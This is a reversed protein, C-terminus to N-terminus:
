LRPTGQLSAFCQTVEDELSLEEMLLLQRSANVTVWQGLRRSSDPFFLIADEPEYEPPPSLEESKIAHEVSDRIEEYHEDLLAPIAPMVDVEEKHVLTARKIRM